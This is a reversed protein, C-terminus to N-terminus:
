QMRLPLTTVLALRHATPIIGVGLLGRALWNDPHSRQWGVVTKGSWVGIAAGLPLDSAWHLNQYLRSVAVLTAVSYAIPAVVRVEHPNWAAVETALVSAAAFSAATHGSPFSVFSGNREHFGRGFSFDGPEVSTANPLARGSVGKVVGNLLAALVVGETMTVGLTTLRNSGTAEGALYLAGGAVFPGPGGSFALARAARRLGRNDRLDETQVSRQIDHDFPALAGTAVIAAGFTVIDTKSILPNSAPAKFTTVASDSPARPPATQGAIAAWPALAGLWCLCRSRRLVTHM